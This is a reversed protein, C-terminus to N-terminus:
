YTDVENKDLVQKLEEKDMPLIHAYGNPAFFDHYMYGLTDLMNSRTKEYMFHKAQKITPIDQM